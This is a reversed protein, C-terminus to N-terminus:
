NEPQKYQDSAKTAKLLRALAERTDEDGVAGLGASIDEDAELGGSFPGAGAEPREDPSGRDAAVARPRSQVRVKRITGDGLIINVKKKLEGDIMSLEAAWAAGDAAVTMSGRSIRTALSHRQLREGVIAKWNRRVLELGVVRNSRAGVPKRAIIDGIAEPKHL